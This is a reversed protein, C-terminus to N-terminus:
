ETDGQIIRNMPTGGDILFAPQTDTVIILGHRQALRFTPQSKALRGPVLSLERRFEEVGFTKKYHNCRRCAPVLNDVDNTGGLHRPHVHDIQLANDGRREQSLQVGCYACRGEFKKRILDRDIM